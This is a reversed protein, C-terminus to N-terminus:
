LMDERIELGFNRIKVIKVGLLITKFYIFLFVLSIVCGIASNNHALFPLAITTQPNKIVYDFFYRSFTQFFIMPAM